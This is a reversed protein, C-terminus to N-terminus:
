LENQAREFRDAGARSTIDLLVRDRLWRDGEDDPAAELLREFRESQLERKV